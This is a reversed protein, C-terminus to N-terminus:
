RGFHRLGHTLNARGLEDAGGTVSPFLGPPPPCSGWGRKAGATGNFLPQTRLSSGLQLPM